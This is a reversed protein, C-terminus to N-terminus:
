RKNWTFNGTDGQWHRETKPLDVGEVKELGQLSAYDSALTQGDNGFGQYLYLEGTPAALYIGDYGQISKGTLMQVLPIPLNNLLQPLQYWKSGALTPVSADGLVPVDKLDKNKIMELPNPLGSFHDPDYDTNDPHTHLLYKKGDTHDFLGTLAVNIVNNIEGQVIDGYKYKTVMQLGGDRYEPVQVTTMVAAYERNNRDTLPMAKQAFDQAADEPTDFLGASSNQTIDKMVGGHGFLTELNKQSLRLTTEDFQDGNDNMTNQLRNLLDQSWKGDEHVGLARQVAKVTYTNGPDSLDTSGETEIHSKLIQPNASLIDSGSWSGTDAVQKWQGNPRKQGAEADFNGSGTWAGPKAIQKWTGDPNKQGAETDAMSNQNSHSIMGNDKFINYLVNANNSINGASNNQGNVYGVHNLIQEQTMKPMKSFVKTQVTKKPNTGGAMGDLFNNEFDNYAADTNPGYVGDIKLPTGDANKFGNSRLQAQWNRVESSPNELQTQYTNMKQLAQLSKPGIQGDVSLPSGSDDTFGYQNLLQQLRKRQETSWTKDVTMANM